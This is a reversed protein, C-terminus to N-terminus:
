HSGSLSWKSRLRRLNSNWSLEANRGCTNAGSINGGEECAWCVDWGFYFVSVVFLALKPLWSSSNTQTWITTEPGPSTTIQLHASLFPKCICFPSLIHHCKGECCHGWGVMNWLRPRPLRRRSTRWQWWWRRSLPCVGSWQGHSSWSM